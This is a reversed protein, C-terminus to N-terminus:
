QWQAWCSLGFSTVPLMSDTWHRLTLPRARLLSLLLNAMAQRVYCSCSPLTKAFSWISWCCWPISYSHGFGVEQSPEPEETNISRNHWWDDRNRSYYEPFCCSFCFSMLIVPETPNSRSHPRFQLDNHVVHGVRVWETSTPILLVNQLLLRVVPLVVSPWLDM